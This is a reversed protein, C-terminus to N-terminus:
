VGFSSAEEAWAARTQAGQHPDNTGTRRLLRTRWSECRDSAGVPVQLNPVLCRGFGITGFWAVPELDDWCRNSRLNKRANVEGNSEVTAGCTSCVGVRSSDM